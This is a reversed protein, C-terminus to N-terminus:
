SKGHMTQPAVFLMKVASRMEEMDNDFIANWKQFQDDAEGGELLYLLRLAGAQITTMQFEPFMDMIPCTDDDDMLDSLRASYHWTLGNTVTSEPQPHLRAVLGATTVDWVFSSPTGTMTRWAATNQDMYRADHQKLIMPHQNNPAKFLALGQNFFDAPPTIDGATANVTESKRYLGVGVKRLMRHRGRNIAKIVDDKRIKRNEEPRDRNENMYGLIESIYDKLTLDAM